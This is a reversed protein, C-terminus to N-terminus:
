RMSVVATTLNNRKMYTLFGKVRNEVWEEPKFNRSARLSTLKELLQPHLQKVSKKPIASSM